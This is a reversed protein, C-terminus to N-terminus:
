GFLVLAILEFRLDVGQEGRAIGIRESKESRM